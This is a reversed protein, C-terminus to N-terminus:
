YGANQVLHPDTQIETLPIPYLAWNPSWSSGKQTAVNNMVQNITNTRKLDLWRHGEETFLEVQREHLIATLVTVQDTANINPLGARSRIVNLDSVAGQENNQQARAEARILYQEALRLMMSYELTGTNVAGIKYKYPYYYSTGGVTVSSIWNSKRQDGNEFSNLLNDSLYVPHDSTNPGTPQLIFVWGDPTNSATNDYVPQLQWIAEKSNKLFVGNLTDLAFLNTNAIVSSAESEANVYNSAENTLNGYYLYVRALLAAAVWKNPRVRETTATIADGAVFNPNLLSEANKLDNIIQTYVQIKPTRAMGANVKYDTTLVLPVDGYLNVLYFYFYGRMFYAEGLLQQKVVSSIKTSSNLGDIAANVNYILQYTFNWLSTGTRATLTNKYYFPIDNPNNNVDFVTLEDASCGSLVSLGSIGTYLSGGGPITMTGYINTLVSIATPDTSFVNDTTLSNTPSPITVFKKCNSIFITTCLFCICRLIKVFKYTPKM